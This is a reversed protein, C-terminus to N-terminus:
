VSGGNREEVEDALVSVAGYLVLNFLRRNDKFWNILTHASVGALQSLEDLGKLGVAKCQQSPKM